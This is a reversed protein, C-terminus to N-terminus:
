SSRQSVPRTTPWRAQRNVWRRGALGTQQSAAPRGQHGLTFTIRCCQNQFRTTPKTSTKPKPLKATWNFTDIFVRPTCRNTNIGPQCVAWGKEQVSESMRAMVTHMGGDAFCAAAASLSARM